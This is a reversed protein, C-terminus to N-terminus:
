CTRRSPLSYPCQAIGTETNTNLGLISVPSGLPCAYRLLLACLRQTPQLIHVPLRRAVQLVAHLSHLLHTDLPGLYLSGRHGGRLVMGYCSTDESRTESAINLVANSFPGENCAQHGKLM